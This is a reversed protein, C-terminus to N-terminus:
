FVRGSCRSATSALSSSAPALTPTPSFPDLHLHAPPRQLRDIHAGGRVGRERGVHLRLEGREVRYGGTDAGDGLRDELVAEHVHQLHPAQPRLNAQFAVRMM